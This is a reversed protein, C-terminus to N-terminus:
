KKPCPLTFSVEPAPAGASPPKYTMKITSPTLQISELAPLNETTVTQVASVTVNELLYILFVESGEIAREVEITMQAYESGVLAAGSLLPSSKDLDKTVSVGQCVRNAVTVSVTKIDIWDKRGDRTSEGPIGPIQLFARIQACAPGAALALVCSLLWLTRKM